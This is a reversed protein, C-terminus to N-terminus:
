YHLASGVANLFFLGIAQGWREVIADGARDRAVKTHYEGAGINGSACGSIEARRIDHNDGDLTELRNFTLRGEKIPHSGHPAHRAPLSFRVACDHVFWRLRANSASAAAYPWAIALSLASM